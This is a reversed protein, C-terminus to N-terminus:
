KSSKEGNKLKKQNKKAKTRIQREDKDFVALIRAVLMVFNKANHIAINKMYAKGGITCAGVLSSILITWWQESVSDTLLVLKLVIVVTCTGSIIGFIDGIVDSCINNVKEANKVLKIATKSGYVRRSAMASLPALDCSTVAIGIADAVISGLILFILLLLMVVIHATSALNSLFSIFAALAFSIFTIKLAWYNKKKGPKAPKQEHKREKKESQSSLSLADPSNEASKTDMTNTPINQNQSDDEM